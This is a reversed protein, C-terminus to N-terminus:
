SNVYFSATYGAATYYGKILDILVEGESSVKGMPTGELRYVCNYLPAHTSIWDEIDELLAHLHADDVSNNNFNYVSLRHFAGRPLDTFHCGGACNIAIGTTRLDDPIILGSWDGYFGVPHYSILSIMHTPFQSAVWPLVNTMDGSVYGIIQFHAITGPLNWNSIDGYIGIGDQTTTIESQLHIDWYQAPFVANTIDITINNGGFHCGICTSPLKNPYWATLNGVFDNDYLHAWGLYQPLVWKEIVTDHLIEYQSYWEFQLLYDVDGTFHVWYIGTSTYDHTIQALVTSTFNTTTGDGWNIVLTYGGTNMSMKVMKIQRLTTQDVRFSLLSMINVSDCYDSYLTGSKARVRYTLSSNQWAHDVYTTVGAALTTILVWGSVGDRYNSTECYIEHEAVGDTNDVFSISAHDEEWVVSLDSPPDPTRRANDKWIALKHIYTNGLRSQLKIFVRQPGFAQAYFPMKHFTWDVDSINNQYSIYDAYLGNNFTVYFEGKAWFQFFYLGTEPPVFDYLMYSGQPIRAVNTGDISNNMTETADVFVSAATDGGGTIGWVEGSLGCLDDRLDGNKIFNVRSTNLPENLVEEMGLSEWGNVQAWQVFEAMTHYSRDHFGQLTGDAAKVVPNQFYHTYLKMTKGRLANRLMYKKIDLILEAENAYDLYNGDYSIALSMERPYDYWIGDFIVKISVDRIDCDVGTCEILFEGLANNITTIKKSFVLCEDRKDDSDLSYIRLFLNGLGYRNLSIEYWEGVVCPNDVIASTIKNPYITDAQFDISDDYYGFKIVGVPCNGTTRLCKVKFSVELNPAEMWDKNEGLDFSGYATDAYGSMRQVVSWGASSDESSEEVVSCNYQAGFVSVGNILNDTYTYNERNWHAPAPFWHTRLTPHLLHQHFITYYMLWGPNDGLIGTDIFHWAETSSTNGSEEGRSRLAINTAALFWEWWLSNDDSASPTMGDPYPIGYDNHLLEINYLAQSSIKSYWAGITGMDEQVNHNAIEEPSGNLYARYGEEYTAFQWFSPTIGHFAFTLNGLAIQELWVADLTVDWGTHAQARFSYDGSNMEKVFTGFLPSDGDTAGIGDVRIHYRLPIVGFGNVYDEMTDSEAATVILNYYANNIHNDLFIKKGYSPYFQNLNLENPIGATYLIGNIDAAILAEETPLKVKVECGNHANIYSPNLPAKGLADLQEGSSSGDFVPISMYGTPEDCIHDSFVIGDKILYSYIGGIKYYVNKLIVSRCLSTAANGFGWYCMAITREDETKAGSSEDVMELLEDQFYIQYNESDAAGCGNYVIRFKLWGDLETGTYEKVIWFGDRCGFAITKDARDVLLSNVYTSTPAYFTMIPVKYATASTLPFGEWYAEWAHNNTGIVNVSGAWLGRRYTQNIVVPYISCGEQLNLLLSDQTSWQWDIGEVGGLIGYNNASFVYNSYGTTFKFEQGDSLTVSVIKKNPLASYDFVLNNGVISVGTTTDARNVQTVSLGSLSVEPTFTVNGLFEICYGGVLDADYGNGSGDIWKNTNFDFYTSQFLIDEEESSLIDEEESSSIAESPLDSYEDMLIEGTIQVTINASIKDAAENTILLKTVFGMFFMSTEYEDPLLICYYAQTNREFDGKLLEYNDRTFNMALSIEGGVKFGAAFERYGDLTAFSTVDINDHSRNPGVIANVDAITEWQTSQSNWRQFRTSVGTFAESAM